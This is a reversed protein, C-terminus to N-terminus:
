PANVQNAVPKSGQVWNADLKWQGDRLTLRAVRLFSIDSEVCQLWHDRAKQANDWLVLQDPRVKDPDNKTWACVAACHDEVPFWDEVWPYFEFPDKPAEEPPVTSLAVHLPPAQYSMRLRAREYAVFKRVQVNEMLQMMSKRLDREDAPFITEERVGAEDEADSLTVVISFAPRQGEVALTAQLYAVAEDTMTLHAVADAGVPLVSEFHTGVRETKAPAEGPEHRTMLEAILAATSFSTLSM